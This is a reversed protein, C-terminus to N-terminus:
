APETNFVLTIESIFGSSSAIHRSSMVYADPNYGEPLGSTKVKTGAHINANGQIRLVGRGFTRGLRNMESKAMAKAADNDTVLIDSICTSKGWIQGSFSQAANTGGGLTEVDGPSSSGAVPEKTMYDWGHVKVESALFQASTTFDLAIVESEPIEVASGSSQPKAFNVKGEEAFVLYGNRAALRKLFNLNSENRQLVYDHKVSTPDVTGSSVGGASIVASAIDSDKQSEYVLTERSGALKCLPDLAIVTLTERGQKWNYRSGTVVGVFSKRTTNGMSIELDSGIEVSPFQEGERNFIVRAIGIRDVHDEVEIRIIGKPESQEYTTGGLTVSFRVTTNETDSM